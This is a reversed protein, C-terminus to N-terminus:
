LQCRVSSVWGQSVFFVTTDNDAVPYSRSVTFFSDVVAQRQINPVATLRTVFDQFSQATVTSAAVLVLFTFRAISSGAFTNKCCKSSM